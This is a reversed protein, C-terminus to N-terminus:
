LFYNITRYSVIIVTLRIWPIILASIAEPTKREVTYDYKVLGVVFMVAFIQLTSLVPLHFFSVFWDNYIMALVHANIYALLPVSCLVIVIYWTTQSSTWNKFQNEKESM